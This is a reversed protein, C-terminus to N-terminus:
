TGLARALKTPMAKLEAEGVHTYHAATTANTQGLQKGIAYADHGLERYLSRATHRLSHFDFRLHATDGYAVRPRMKGAKVAAKVAKRLRTKTM